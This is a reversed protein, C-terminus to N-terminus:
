MILRDELGQDIMACSKGGLDIRSDGGKAILNPIRETPKSFNLIAKPRPVNTLYTSKDFRDNLTFRHENIKSGMAKVFPPRAPTKEFQTARNRVFAEDQPLGEKVITTNMKERVIVYPSNNIRENKFQFAYGFDDDKLKMRRDEFFKSTSMITPGNLETESTRNKSQSFQSKDTIKAM